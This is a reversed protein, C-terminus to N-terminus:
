DVKKKENEYRIRDEEIERNIRAQEQNDKIRNGWIWGVICGIMIAVPFELGSHGFFASIVSRGTFMFSLTTLAVLIAFGLFGGIISFLFAM